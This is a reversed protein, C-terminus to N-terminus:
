EDLLRALPENSPSVFVGELEGALISAYRPETM